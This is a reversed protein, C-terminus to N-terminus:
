DDSIKRKWIEGGVWLLFLVILISSRATNIDFTTIMRGTKSIYNNHNQLVSTKMSETDIHPWELGSNHFTNIFYKKIILSEKLVTNAFDSKDDVNSSNQFASTKNVARYYHLLFEFLFPNSDPGYKKLIDDGSIGSDIDNYIIKGYTNGNSIDVSKIEDLKLRSYINGIEPDYHNHGYETMSEEQQLWSLFGIASTYRRVNHPTNSLCLGMVVLNLTLTGVLLRVSHNKVAQSIYSPKIGKWIALIFIAGGLFNVGVDKYDWYRSPMMWQLFEDVTGLFMVIFAATIYVTWDKIRYSLAKFVFFSLLGYELLHIAEEPYGGLQITFYVYLGACTILCTYQSLSKIKLRFIFLYLLTILGAGIV